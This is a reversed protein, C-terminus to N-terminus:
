RELRQMQTQWTESSEPISRGGVGADPCTDSEKECLEEM